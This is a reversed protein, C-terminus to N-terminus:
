LLTMCKKKQECLNQVEEKIQLVHKYKEKWQIHIEEIQLLQLPTKEFQLGIVMLAGSLCGCTKGRKSMGGGFPVSLAIAKEKKNEM